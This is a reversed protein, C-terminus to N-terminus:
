GFRLLFRVKAFRAVAGAVGGRQELHDLVMVAEAKTLLKGTIHESAKASTVLSEAAEEGLSKAFLQTLESSPITAAAPAPAPAVPPPAPPVPLAPARPPASGPVPTSRGGNLRALRILTLRAALGAPGKQAELRRLLTVGERNTLNEGVGLAAAEREVAERAESEGLSGALLKALADLSNVEM